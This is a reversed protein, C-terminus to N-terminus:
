LILQLDLDLCVVIVNKHYWKNILYTVEVNNYLTIFNESYDENSSLNFLWLIQFYKSISSSNALCM